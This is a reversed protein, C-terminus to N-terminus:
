SGYRASLLREPDAKLLLVKALMIDGAPLSGDEFAVCFEKGSPDKIRGQYRVVFDGKATKVTVAGTKMLQGKEAESM